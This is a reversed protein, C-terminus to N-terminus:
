EGEVAGLINSEGPDLVAVVNVTFPKGCALGLEKSSGAFIHLKTRSLSSYYRLDELTEEPCNAAAIILKAEGRKLAKISRKTGVIVKGTSIAKGLEDSVGM